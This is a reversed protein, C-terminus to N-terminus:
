VNAKSLWSKNMVRHNIIFTGIGAQIITNELVVLFNSNPPPGDLHTNRRGRM